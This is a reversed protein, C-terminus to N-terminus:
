TCQFGVPRKQQPPSPHTGPTLISTFPLYFFSCLLSKAFLSVRSVPDPPNPPSTQPWTEALLEPAPAPRRSGLNERGSGQVVHPSPRSTSGHRGPAAPGLSQGRTERLEEPGTTGTPAVEQCGQHSERRRQRQVARRRRGRAALVDGRTEAPLGAISPRSDSHSMVRSTFTSMTKRKADDGAHLYAPAQRAESQPHAQWRAPAPASCRGM